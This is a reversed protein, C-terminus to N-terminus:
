NLLLEGPDISQSLYGKLTMFDIFRELGQIRTTYFLGDNKLYDELVRPAIKYIVSLTEAAKEPNTKIFLIGEELAKRVANIQERRKEAFSSAAMGVIFTFEGGFAEDGTILVRYPYSGQVETEVEQFIFPPSTFHADVNGSLLANMGNPHNLTVLNDDFASPDNLYKESAMCLLIHQISGPQPLAITKNNLLDRFDKVKGTDVVLGLPARSLGTFIQWEMGKDRAILFPPIGMFGIDVDGAIVAERIAATNDMRVWKIETDPLMKELIGNIRIIQLPAYALGFQEAITIENERGSCSATLFTGFVAVFLIIIGTIKSKM